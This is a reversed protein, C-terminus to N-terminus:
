DLFLRFICAFCLLVLYLYMDRFLFELDSSVLALHFAPKVSHNPALDPPVPGYAPRDPLGGPWEPSVVLSAKLVGIRRIRRWTRHDGSFNGFV